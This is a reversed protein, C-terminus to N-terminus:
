NSVNESHGTFVHSFDIGTQCRLCFLCSIHTDLKLFKSSRVMIIYIKVVLISGFLCIGSCTYTPINDPSNSHANHVVHMESYFLNNSFFTKFIPKTLLNTLIALLYMLKCYMGPKPKPKPKTVDKLKNLIDGLWATFVDAHQHLFLQLDEKM